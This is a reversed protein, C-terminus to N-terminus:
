NLDKRPIEIDGSEILNNILHDVFSSNMNLSDTIEEGSSDIIIFEETYEQVPILKNEGEFKLLIKETLQIKYDTQGSTRDPNFCIFQENIGGLEELTVVDKKFPIFLQCRRM